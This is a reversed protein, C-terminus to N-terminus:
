IDMKQTPRLASVDHMSDLAQIIHEVDAASVDLHFVMRIQTPSIALCSINQEALQQVLWKPNIGETVEFIVINTEVPLVGKVFEKGTLLKGVRAAHQHDVQLRDIHHRLAYVGSAAMFGAQRM